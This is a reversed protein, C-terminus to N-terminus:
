LGHPENALHQLRSVTLIWPPSNPLVDWSGEARCVSCVECGNEREQHSSLNPTGGIPPRVSTNGKSGEPGSLPAYEVRLMESDGLSATAHENDVMRSAFAGSLYKKLALAHLPM